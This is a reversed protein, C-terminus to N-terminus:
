PITVLLANLGERPWHLTYWRLATGLFREGSSAMASADYDKLFSRASFIM